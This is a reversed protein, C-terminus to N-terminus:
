VFCYQSSQVRARGVLFATEAHFVVEAQIEHVTKGPVIQIYGGDDLEDMARLVWARGDLPGYRETNERPVQAVRERLPEHLLPEVSAVKVAAVTEAADTMTSGISAPAYSWQGQADATIRFILGGGEGEGPEGEGEGGAAGGGSSSSEEPTSPPVPRHLYLSWDLKASGGEPQTSLIVYLGNPDLLLRPGARQPATAASTSSEVAQAELVSEAAAATTTTTDASTDPDPPLSESSEGGSQQDPSTTTTPPM